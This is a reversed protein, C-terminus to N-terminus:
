RARAWYFDWVVLLHKRWDEASAPVIWHPRGRARLIEDRSHSVADHSPAYSEVKFPGSLREPDVVFFHLPPVSAFYRMTVVGEFGRTNMTRLVRATEWVEARFKEIDSFRPDVDPIQALVADPLQPDVCLVRIDVGRRLAAEVVPTASTRIFACDTGSILVSVGRQVAALRAELGGIAQDTLARTTLLVNPAAEDSEAHPPMRLAAVAVYGLAIILAGAIAVTWRPVDSRSLFDLVDAVGLIGAVLLGGVVAYGLIVVPTQSPPRNLQALLQRIRM